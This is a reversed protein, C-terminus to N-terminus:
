PASRSVRVEARRQNTYRGHEELVRSSSNLSASESWNPSAPLCLLLIRLSPLLVYITSQRPQVGENGSCALVTVVGSLRERLLTLFHKETARWGITLINRVKPLLDSLATLHDPPCEFDTKSEVPIAFGEQSIERAERRKRIEDM